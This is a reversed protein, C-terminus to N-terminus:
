ETSVEGMRAGATTNSGAYGEGDGYDGDAGFSEPVASFFKKIPHYSNPLFHKKRTYFGNKMKKTNGKLKVGENM